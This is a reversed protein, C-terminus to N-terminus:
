INYTNTFPNLKRPAYTTHNVHYPKDGNFRVRYETQRRPDIIKILKKSDLFKNVLIKKKLYFVMEM